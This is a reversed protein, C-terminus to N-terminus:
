GCLPAGAIWVSRFGGTVRGAAPFTVDLSGEITTDPQVATVMVHGGTAVEFQNPATYYWAAASTDGAAILWSGGALHDLPQWVAIRIYPAPPALSEVPVTALYIGVAPGDAPGCARAAAAYHFRGPPRLTSDSLCAVALLAAICGSSWTM